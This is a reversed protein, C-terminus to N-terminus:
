ELHLISVKIRCVPLNGIARFFLILCEDDLLAMRDFKFKYRSVLKTEIDNQLRPSFKAARLLYVMQQPM